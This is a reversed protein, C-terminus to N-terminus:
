YYSIKWGNLIVWISSIQSNDATVSAAGSARRRRPRWCWWPRWRRRPRWCRRPRWRRWSSSSVPSSLSSVPSSRSVLVLLDPVPMGPAMILLEEASLPASSYPLHPWHKKFVLQTSEQIMVYTHYTWSVTTNIVISVTPVSWFYYVNIYNVECSGANFVLTLLKLVWCSPIMKCM